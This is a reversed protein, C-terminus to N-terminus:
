YERWSMPVAHESAYGNLKYFLKDAERYQRDALERLERLRQSNDTQKDLYEKYKKWEARMSAFQRFNIRWWAENHGAPMNPMPPLEEFVVMERRTDIKISYNAMFDMGILGEFHGSISRSITVPVFHDMAGGVQVTEIITFIAPVSGGVGHARTALRVNDKDFLDLKEALRYSIHMGPAGTDLAMPATVSGNFTVPIIIRRAIGEFAKYPVEYRKLKQLEGESGSSPKNLEYIKEELQTNDPSKKLDSPRTYRKLDQDTFFSSNQEQNKNVGFVPYAILLILTILIIKKLKKVEKRIFRCNGAARM